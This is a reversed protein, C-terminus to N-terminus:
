GLKAQTRSSIWRVLLNILAIWLVLVLAGTLALSKNAMQPQDFRTYVSLPLAAMAKTIDTSVFNNGAATFLLPATEGGVRAIALVVGTLIASRAAPLVVHWITRWEGIGLGFSAERLAAPVLRIAEETVRTIVPIMLFSLAVAASYASAGVGKVLLTYGLIGAVISPLGTLVEALFRLSNAFWGRGMEALYVGALVGIPVGIASAMGVIIGTGIIANKFGRPQGGGSEPNSFFSANLGPMGEKFLYALLLVLPILAVISAFAGFGYTGFHRLKRRAPFPLFNAALAYAVVLAVFSYLVAQL